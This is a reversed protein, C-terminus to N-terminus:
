HIPRPLRAVFWGFYKQINPAVVFVITTVMIPALVLTRQWTTWGETLPTLIYLLLTILPYIAVLMLLTLRVKSPNPKRAQVNTETPM